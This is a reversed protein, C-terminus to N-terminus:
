KMKSVAEVFYIVEMFRSCPLAKVLHKQIFEHSSEPALFEDVGSVSLLKITSGGGGEKERGRQKGRSEVEMMKGTLLELDFPKASELLFQSQDQSNICNVYFSKEDIFPKIEPSIEDDEDINDFDDECM